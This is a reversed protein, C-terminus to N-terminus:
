RCYKGFEDKVYSLTKTEPANPSIVINDPEIPEAETSISISDTNPHPRIYFPIGYGETGALITIRKTASQNFDVGDDWSIDANKASITFDAIIEYDNTNIMFIKYIATNNDSQPAICPIRLEENVYSFTANPKVTEQQDAISVEDRPYTFGLIAFTWGVLAIAAIVVILVYTVKSNMRDEIVICEYYDNDPLLKYALQFNLFSPALEFKIPGTRRYQYGGVKIM